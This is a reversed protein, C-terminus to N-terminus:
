TGSNIEPRRGSGPLKVGAPPTGKWDFEPPHSWDAAHSFNVKGGTFKAEKFNVVTGTFHAKNFGIEGDAFRAGIAKWIDGDYPAGFCAQGENFRVNAFSVVSGTFEANFYVDSGSFEAYSFDVQGGSFQAWQFSVSGGSFQAENFRITNGSFESRVFFVQSGCFRVCSFWVPGVFRADSFSVTNGSFVAGSFDGGDFVAGEFDYHLQQWSVDASDQLHATIIRIITHRVERNGLFAIREAAPANKGPDAEYPLRLYACLVDVCTQRNEEWDDALGAMAHVGALQVAPQPDGLQTAITTFRENLVRTRDHATVTEAVRQRRYAMVLAVLAGAGAVSAFVLQLVSIFDHLSIASSHPVKPYHLFVLALWTLGALVVVASAFCVVLAWGIPWLRLHSSDNLGNRQKRDVWRM